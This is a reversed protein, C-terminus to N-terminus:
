QYLPREQKARREILGPAFNGCQLARLLLSAGAVRKPSETIRRLGDGRRSGVRPRRVCCRRNGGSGRAAPHHRAKETLRSCRSCSDCATRKEELPDFIEEPMMTARWRSVVYGRRGFIHRDVVVVPARWPIFALCSEIAVAVTIVKRIRIIIEDSRVRLNRRPM